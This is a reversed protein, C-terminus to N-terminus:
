FFIINLLITILLLILGLPGAKMYWRSEKAYVKETLSYVLGKLEEDPKPKTVLSVLITSFFNAIWSFAA